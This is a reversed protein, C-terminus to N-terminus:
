VGLAAVVKEHEEETHVPFNAIRLGINKLESYCSGVYIGHSDILKKRTAEADGSGVISVVTPARYKEEKIMARYKTKAELESILKKARNYTDDRLKKIGISLYKDLVKGLLYIGLVNPTEPTQFKEAHEALSVFSHYTGITSIKGKLFKARDIARPSLIVVGLGAPLAFGKQISFYSCDVFEFPIDAAPVGSVIDIALLKEPSRKAINVIEEKPMWMGVSTESQTLCIAESEKPISISDFGEAFDITLEVKKPDRGLKKSAEYWRTSFEGNVVHFSNKEINNQIFREWVETASSVFAITHTQPISLLERLDNTIKLYMEEFWKSRHSKSFVNEKSAADLWKPLEQHVKTPGPSLFIPSM